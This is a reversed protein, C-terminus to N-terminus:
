SCSSSAAGDDFLDCDQNLGDTINFFRCLRCQVRAEICPAVAGSSCSGPLAALAAASSCNADVAAALKKAATAVKANIDSGIRAFCSEMQAASVMLTPTGVLGDKKCSLFAKTAADFRKQALKLVSKQCKSGEKNSAPLTAATLDPGFLDEVLALAESQAAANVTNAATFGFLPAPTCKDAAWASTKLAAAAVKGDVDANQCGEPDAEKGAAARALCKLSLKEQAKVVGVGKSNLGNVCGREAKTLARVAISWLSAHSTYATITVEGGGGVVRSAVCPDPTAPPDSPGPNCDALAVGNRFVQLQSPIVGPPIASADVTLTLILPDAATAAPAEISLQAGVVQLDADAASTASQIVVTGANPTTVSSIVPIQASTGNNGPDSTVTDGANASESVITLTCDNECGDDATLNADDCAELNPPGTDVV